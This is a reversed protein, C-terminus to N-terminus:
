RIAGELYGDFSAHSRCRCAISFESLWYVNCQSMEQHGQMWIDLYMKLYEGSDVALSLSEQDFQAM